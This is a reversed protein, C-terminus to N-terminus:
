DKNELEFLESLLQLSPHDNTEGARRISQCPQHMFKQALRNALETLIKESQQKDLAPQADM